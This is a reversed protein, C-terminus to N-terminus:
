IEQIRTLFPDIGEGNYMRINRLKEEWSMKRQKSSNQYLQALADWMEKATNKGYVHSVIHNWERDLIMWNEKGMEENYKLQDADNSIVVVIVAFTKLGHEYLLFSM